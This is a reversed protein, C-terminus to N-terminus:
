SNCAGSCALMPDLPKASLRVTEALDWLRTAHADPAAGADALAAAAAPEAAAASLLLLAALLSLAAGERGHPADDAPPPPAAAARPAVRGGRSARASGRASCRARCRAGRAALRAAALPTCQLAALSMANPSSVRRGRQVPRFFELQKEEGGGSRSICATCSPCRTTAAACVPALRRELRAGTPAAPPRWWSREAACGASRARVAAGAARTAADVTAIAL